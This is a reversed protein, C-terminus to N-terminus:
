WPPPLGSSRPYKLGSEQSVTQANWLSCPFKSLANARSHARHARSPRHHRLPFFLRAEARAPYIPYIIAFAAGRATKAQSLAGKKCAARNEKCKSLALQTLYVSVSLQKIEFLLPSVSPLVY